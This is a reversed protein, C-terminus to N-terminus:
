DRSRQAGEADLDKFKGSQVTREGLERHKRRAQSAKCLPERRRFFELKNKPRLKFTMEELM